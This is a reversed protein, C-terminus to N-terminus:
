LTKIAKACAKKWKIWNSLKTQQAQTLKNLETAHYYEIATARAKEVTIAIYKDHKDARKLKSKEIFNIIDADSYRYLFFMVASIIEMDFGSLTTDKDQRNYIKYYEQAAASGTEQLVKQLIPKFHYMSAITKEIPLLPLSAIQKDTFANAPRPPFVAVSSKAQASGSRKEAIKKKSPTGKTKIPQFTAVSTKAQTSGSRQDTTPESAVSNKQTIYNWALMIALDINGFNDNEIYGSVTFYRDAIYLEIKKDSSKGGTGGNYRNFMDLLMKKNSTTGIIHYGKRSVSQEIYSSKGAQLIADIEASLSSNGISVDDIDIGVIDNATTFALGIGDAKSRNTPLQCRDYENLVDQYSYFRKSDWPGPAINPKKSPKGGPRQVFQWTLWFRLDKLRDPIKNWTHM